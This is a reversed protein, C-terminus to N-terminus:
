WIYRSLMIKASTLSEKKFFNSFTKSQIEFSAELLLIVSSLPCVSSRVLSIFHHSFKIVKNFKGLFLDKAFVECAVSSSFEQRFNCVPLERSKQRFKPSYQIYKSSNRMSNSESRKVTCKQCCTVYCRGLKKTIDEREVYRIFQSGHSGVKLVRSYM